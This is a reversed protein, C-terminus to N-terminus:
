SFFDEVYQGDGDKELMPSARLVNDFMNLKIVLTPNKYKKRM